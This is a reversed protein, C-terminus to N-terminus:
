APTRASCPPAGTRLRLGAPSCPTLSRGDMPRTARAGTWELVTPAIDNNAVLETRRAGAAVGPGSVFMPVRVTEEYPLAKSDLGHEGFQYGNDSLFVYYTDDQEGWRGMANRLRAMAAVSGELMRLRERGTDTIERRSKAEQTRV